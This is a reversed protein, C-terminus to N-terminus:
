GVLIMHRLTSAALFSPDSPPEVAAAAVVSSGGDCDDVVVLFLLPFRSGRRVVGCAVVVPSSVEEVGSVSDEAAAAISDLSVCVGGVVDSVVVFVVSRFRGM